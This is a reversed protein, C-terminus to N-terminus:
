NESRRRDTRNRSRGPERIRGHRMWDVRGEPGEPALAFTLRRLEAVLGASNRMDALREFPIPDGINVDLRTGIRRATERFILSLRLTLSPHSAIQFLRSNQGSFHVPVVTAGTARILKATFPAWPLDLAAGRLPRESTSVAGGPFIGIAHGDNLWDRAAGRSALNVAIAERTDSFDVPLLYDKTEPVSNLVGNALVRTDPRVKLALWSLVVGDLVGYPHNAVFVLPGHEP